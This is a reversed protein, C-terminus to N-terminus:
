EHSTPRRHVLAISIWITRLPLSRVWLSRVAAIPFRLRAKGSLGVPFTYGGNGGASPYVTIERPDVLHFACGLAKVVAEKVSWLLASAEEPAGGSLKLAHYLEEPHFIRHVPYDGHFEDAEAADIGIDSDVGALAAWVKGGGASFSIAPGRDEGVLLQPKGLPGSVVQIPYDSCLASQRCNWWPREMAVYHNWLTSVLRHKEAEGHTGDKRLRETDRSRSPLSAYFVAGKQHVSNMTHVTINEHDNARNVEM